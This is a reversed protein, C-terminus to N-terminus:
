SIGPITTQAGTYIGAYSNVGTPNPAALGNITATVVTIGAGFMEQAMDLATATTNINLESAIAM